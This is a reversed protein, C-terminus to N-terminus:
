DSSMRQMQARMRSIVKPDMMFLTVPEVFEADAAAAALELLRASIPMLGRDTIAPLVLRAWALDDVTADVLGRRFETRAEQAFTTSPDVAEIWFAEELLIPDVSITEKSM